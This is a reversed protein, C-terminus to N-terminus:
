PWPILGTRLRKLETHPIITLDFGQCGSQGHRRMGFFQLPDIVLRTSM